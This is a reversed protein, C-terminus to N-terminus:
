SKGEGPEGRGVGREKKRWGERKEWGVQAKKRGGEGGRKGREEDVAQHGRDGSEEGRARWGGQSGCLRAIPSARARCLRRGARPGQGLSHAGM